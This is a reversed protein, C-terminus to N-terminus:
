VSKPENLSMVGVIKANELYQVNFSNANDDQDKDTVVSSIDDVQNIISGDISTSYFTDKEMISEVAKVVQIKVSSITVQLCPPLNICHCACKSSPTIWKGACISPIITFSVFLDHARTCTMMM